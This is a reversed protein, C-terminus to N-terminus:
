HRSFMMASLKPYNQTFNVACATQVRTLKIKSYKQSGRVQGDMEGKGKEYTIYFDQVKWEKTVTFCIQKCKLSKEGEVM